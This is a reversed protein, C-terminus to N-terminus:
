NRIFNFLTMKEQKALRRCYFFGVFYSKIKIEIQLFYLRRIQLGSFLFLIAKSERDAMNNTLTEILTHM